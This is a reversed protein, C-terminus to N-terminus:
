KRSTIHLLTKLQSKRSNKTHVWRLKNTYAYIRDTSTSERNPYQKLSRSQGQKSWKHCRDRKICMNWKRSTKHFRSDRETRLKTLCPEETGQKIRWINHFRKKRNLLGLAKQLIRLSPPIETRPFLKFNTPNLSPKRQYIPVTEKTLSKRSPRTKMSM